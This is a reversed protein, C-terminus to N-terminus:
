HWKTKREREPALGYTRWESSQCKECSWLVRVYKEFGSETQHQRTMAVGCKPCPLSEPVNIANVGTKVPAAKYRRAIFKLFSSVTSERLEAYIGDPVDFLQWVQGSKFAIELIRHERSYALSRVKEDFVSVRPGEIPVVFHECDDVKKQCQRCFVV